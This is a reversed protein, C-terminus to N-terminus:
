VGCPTWFSRLLSKMTELLPTTMAGRRSFMQILSAVTCVFCSLYQVARSSVWCIKRKSKRSNRHRHLSRRLPLWAVWDWDGLRTRNSSLNCQPNRISCIQQRLLLQQRNRPVWIELSPSSTTSRTRRLERWLTQPRLYPPLSKHPPLDRHNIQPFTTSTSFIRPRNVRQSPRSLRRLPSGIKRFVLMRTLCWVPLTKLEISVCEERRQMSDAGIRGLGIFTGAPKHYVSALTSM